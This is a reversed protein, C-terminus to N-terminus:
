EITKDEEIPEPLRDIRLMLALVEYIIDSSIPMVEDPLYFYSYGNMYLEIPFPLDEDSLNISFIPPDKQLKRNDIYKNYPIYSEHINCRVENNIHSDPVDNVEKIDISGRIGATIMQYETSVNDILRDISLPGTATALLDITDEDRVLFSNMDWMFQNNIKLDEQLESIKNLKNLIGSSKRRNIISYIREKFNVDGESLLTLKM